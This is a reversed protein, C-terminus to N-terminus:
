ARFSFRRSVPSRKSNGSLGSLLLGHTRGDDEIGPRQTQHGIRVLARLRLCTTGPERGEASGVASHDDGFNRIVFDATLQEANLTARGEGVQVSVANMQFVPRQRCCHHSSGSFQPCHCRLRPLLGRGILRKIAVDDKRSLSKIQTNGHDHGGPVREGPASQERRGTTSCREM